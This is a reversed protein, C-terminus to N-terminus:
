EPGNVNFNMTFRTDIETPTSNWLNLRVELTIFDQLLIDKVESLSNILVLDNVNSRNIRDHYFIERSVTPDSGSIAHISIEQIIAWDVNVFLSELNGSFPSVTAVDDVSWTGSFYSRYRTPVDRIYFYHTDLNNLAPPITLDAQVTMQFLPEETTVCGMTCTMVLLLLYIHIHKIYTM